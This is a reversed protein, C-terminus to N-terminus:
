KVLSQAKSLVGGVAESLKTPDTVNIFIGKGRVLSRLNAASTANNTSNWFVVYVDIGESHAANADSQALALLQNNTLWPHAGSSSSSPEGDSVVIMCRNSNTSTFNNFMAQAKEIGAAIDTGSGDDPMGWGGVSLSNVANKLSWYNGVVGKISAITSATGTFAVLGFNSKSGTVNLSNLLDSDGTRAYAIENAFSGSVDQVIIVDIAPRRAVSIATKTIGFDRFGPHIAPLFILQVANGRSASLAGNIRVANASSEGTGTLLSFVRTTENWAGLEIDSDSLSFVRGNVSNSAAIAKARARAEAPGASLGGSAALASADIAAQLESRVCSVNAFDIALSLIMILMPVAVVVQIM